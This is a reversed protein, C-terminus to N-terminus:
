KAYSHTQGESHMPSSEPVAPDPEEEAVAHCDLGALVRQALHRAQDPHFFAASRAGRPERAGDSRSLMPSLLVSPLSWFRSPLEAVFVSMWVSGV